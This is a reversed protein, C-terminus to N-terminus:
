HALFYLQTLYYGFGFVVGYVFAKVLKKNENSNILNVIKKIIYFFGIPLFILLYLPPFSLGALLGFIFSNQYKKISM